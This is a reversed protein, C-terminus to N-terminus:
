GRLARGTLYERVRFKRAKKVRLRTLIEIEIKAGFEFESLSLTLSLCSVIQERERESERVLKKAQKGRIITWNHRTQAYIQTHIYILQVTRVHM